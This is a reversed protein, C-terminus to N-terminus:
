GLAARIAGLKLQAATLDKSQVTYMSLLTAYKAEWNDVPAPAAYLKDKWTTWTAGPCVSGDTAIEKHAVVPFSTGMSYRYNDILAKAAALQKDSPVNTTFDGTLCIHVSDKNQAAVGYTILTHDATYFIQGEHDVVFHYGIGPWGNSNVHYNAFQQPTASIGTASHHIVLRKIWSLPRTDYRLTPHVALSGRIDLVDLNGIRYTGLEEGEDQAEPPLITSGQLKLITDTIIDVNFSEWGYPGSGFITAGLVYDDKQLESDWKGIEAAYDDGSIGQARWGPAQEYVADRGAETILFPPHQGLREHVRRHRLATWDDKYGGNVSESGWYQHIAVADLESLIGSAKIVDWDTMEPCGVSFCFGAVKYGREHCRRAFEREFVIHEELGQGSYQKWENFSELYLKTNNYGNLSAIVEDAIAAGGRPWEQDQYQYYRRYVKIATNSAAQLVSLDGVSKVIPAIKAWKIAQETGSQAHPGVKRWM